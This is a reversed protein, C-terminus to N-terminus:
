RKIFLKLVDGIVGDSWRENRESRAAGQAHAAMYRQLADWGGNAYSERVGKAM